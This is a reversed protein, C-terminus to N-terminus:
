PTPAAAIQEVFRLFHPMIAPWDYRQGVLRLANDALEHRLHPRSFLHSVAAAFTPPTDAILLHEGDRADLGEAGKSTSIVPTKLAMAELIKLRTGGGEHIPALSLWSGAILPRIDDVFGTLTVNRAPPLPLGAHDGTITLSAGPHREQILPLVEEIFWIMAEYNPRYRFSGTFIMTEPRPTTDFGQYSQVEICNPIVELKTGNRAVSELMQREQDSVVTCGQYHDLLNALYRRHKAWTLGHRMRPGLASAGAYREYLVGVEAEEFVAPIEGFFRRYAAMDFQSAIVLDYDASALAGEIAAQMGPSFTDLVSRPTPSLIGARARWSDPQFPKRPVTVVTECFDELGTLDPAGEEPETFSILTVAHEAALGRLLHYIRLKSGNSPPWPYWRSLFLIHM